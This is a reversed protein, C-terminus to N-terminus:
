RTNRLYDLLKKAKSFGPDIVLAKELYSEAKRVNGIEYELLGLNYLGDLYTPDKAVVSSYFNIKTYINIKQIDLAKQNSYIYYSNYLLAICFAILIFIFVVQLIIFFSSSSILDKTETFFRYIRPYKKDKIKAM